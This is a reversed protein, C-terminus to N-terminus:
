SRLSYDQAKDRYYVWIFGLLAAPIWAKLWIMAAIAPLLSYSMVISHHSFRRRALGALLVIVTALLGSLLMGEGLLLMFAGIGTMDEALGLRVMLETARVSIDVYDPKWLHLSRETGTMISGTWVLSAGIFSFAAPLLEREKTQVLFLYLGLPLLFVAMFADLSPLWTQFQPLPRPLLWFFLTVLSYWLKFWVYLLVDCLSLLSIDMLSAFVPLTFFVFLLLTTLLTDAGVGSRARYKLRM